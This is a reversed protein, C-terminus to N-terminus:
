FPVGPESDPGSFAFGGRGKGTDADIKRVPALAVPNMRPIRAAGYKPHIRVIPRCHFVIVALHPETQMMEIRANHIIAIYFAGYAIQGTDISVPGLDPEVSCVPRAGQAPAESFNAVFVLACHM